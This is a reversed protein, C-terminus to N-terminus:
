PFLVLHFIGRIAMQLKTTIATQSATRLLTFSCYASARQIIASRSLFDRKIYSDLIKRKKKRRLLEQVVEDIASIFNEKQQHNRYDLLFEELTETPLRRLYAQVSHEM